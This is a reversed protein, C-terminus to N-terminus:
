AITQDFLLESNLICDQDTKVNILMQIFNYCFKCLNCWYNRINVLYDLFYAFHSITQINAFNHRILGPFEFVLSLEKILKYQYSINLYLLVKLSNPNVHM